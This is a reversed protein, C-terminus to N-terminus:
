YSRWLSGDYEVNWIKGDRKIQKVVTFYIDAPQNNWNILGIQLDPLGGQQQSEKMERSTLYHIKCNYKECLQKAETIFDDLEENTM